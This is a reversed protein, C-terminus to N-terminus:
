IAEGSNFFVLDTKSFKLVSNISLTKWFISPINAFTLQDEPFYLTLDYSLATSFLKGIHENTDATGFKRIHDSQGFRHVREDPSLDEFSEDYHGEAFPIICVHVGSPKLIRHIHFLSYAVNCPTHELVHSHIILDYANSSFNEMECLNIKIMNRAFPFNEPFMDAPEYEANPFDRLIADYLCKEPAIHLIRANEPLNLECLFMWILRTRTLSNCGLCREFPRTRMAGFKDHGCINCKM